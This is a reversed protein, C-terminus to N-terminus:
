LLTARPDVTGPKGLETIEILKLKELLKAAALHRRAALFYRGVRSPHSAHSANEWM